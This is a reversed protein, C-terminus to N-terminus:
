KQNELLFSKAQAELNDRDAVIEQEVKLVLEQLMKSEKAWSEWADSHPKAKDRNMLARNALHQLRAARAKDSALMADVAVQMMHGYSKFKM